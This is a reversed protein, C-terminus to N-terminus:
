KTDAAYAQAKKWHSPYLKKSLRVMDDGRVRASVVTSYDLIYPPSPLPYSFFGRIDLAGFAIELSVRFRSKILDRLDPIPVTRYRCTDPHWEGDRMKGHNAVIAAVEEPETDRLWRPIYNDYEETFYKSPILPM